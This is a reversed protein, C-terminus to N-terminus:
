GEYQTGAEVFAKEKKSNDVQKTAIKNIMMKPINGNPNLMFVGEALCHDPNEAPKLHIVKNLNARVIKNVEPIGSDDISANIVFFEGNEGEKHVELISLDRDSMLMMPAKMVQYWLKVSESSEHRCELVSCKEMILRVNDYKAFWKFVEAPTKEFLISKKIV